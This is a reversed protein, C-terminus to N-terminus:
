KQSRLATVPLLRVSASAETFIQFKHINGPDQLLGHMVQLFLIHFYTNKESIAETVHKTRNRYAVFFISM